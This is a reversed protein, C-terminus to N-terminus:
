PRAAGVVTIRGTTGNVAVRQGDVLRATADGTGLVAPIGYERAVIAAHSLPGGVDTVVAAAVGFLPTWAPSTAPAVLVEGRRLRAFEAPCRVIRARGIATGSSAPTGALYEGTAPVQAPLGVAAAVWMEGRGHAAVARDHAARRRAVRERVEIHGLGAPVLEEPLLFFVDGAVGVRGAAVLGCGLSLAARRLRAAVREQLFLGDERATLWGRTRPLSAAFVRRALPGLRGAVRSVAAAYTADGPRTPSDDAPVQEQLAAVLDLLTTPDERWTPAGVLPPMGGTSRDGWEALFGGLAATFAASDRGEDRAVRALEDVARQMQATRHPLDLLLSRVTDAAAHRGVARRVLLRVVWEHLLGPLFVEDIRRPGYRDFTALGDRLMRAAEDPGVDGADAPRWAAPHRGQGDVNTVDLLWSERLVEWNAAPDERVARMLRVPLRWVVSASPWPQPVRIALSGDAREAFLQRRDPPRVGLGPLFFWRLVGAVAAADLPTVPEPYYESLFATARRLVVARLRGPRSPVGDQVPAATATVPRTQLLYFRGGARTWEIDQPGGYHAAVRRGLAALATLDRRRLSSRSRQRRPTDRTHTGEDPDDAVYQSKSGITRRRLRGAPTLVYTDPTVIGSVVSEALGYNATVVFEDARGTMPNTTFLVGAVDAPVMAQVVVAMSVSVHDLGARARYRVARATWVSAWCRRVAAAVAEATCPVGLFSAQQGAFSAGPLDEATASSRVAVRAPGAPSWRALREGATAIAAAAAGPMDEREIWGAIEAAACEEAATDGAPLSALRAAIRTDLGARALHVRYAATTVVFGPPVPLGLKFMEALNAGKGGAEAVSDRGLEAFWRVLPYGASLHDM